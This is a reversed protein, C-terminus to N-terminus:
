NSFEYIFSRLSEAAALEESRWPKSTGRVLQQWKKFSNRPHYNRSGEEFQIREETNGGWNVLRVHESRFLLIYEDADYRIPIVLIGSAIETFAGARDYDSSLHDSSYVQRLQRTHLWLILERLEEGPPVVGKSYMKGKLSITAGDANFLSLLDPSGNLLTDPLDADRYAEEVLNRYREKLTMSFVHSDNSQLSTIRSSVMSSIMEFISLMEFSLRNETRHHCAILGWLSEGNMIRTSMSAAVGMNKLYELHVSAVSRLNCDSLDLFSQTLPNIVPTLKVPQYERTPIYRFSNKTYLQRAQQPIDSAPFTIGIYEEMDDEKKESIVTGNWDSDFCYVMVKDFASIRKLEFACNDAVEKISASAQILTMVQRIEKYVSVFSLQKEKEYPVADIEILLFEDKSHVFSLFPIHNIQWVAPGKASVGRPNQEDLNKCAERSLYSRLDTNIMQHAPIGFVVEANESVQIVRKSDHLAVVLVGYPQIQNILHIPLSGCFESDYNTRTM